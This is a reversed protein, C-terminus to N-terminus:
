WIWVVFLNQFSTNGPITVLLDYQPNVTCVNLVTKFDTELPVM